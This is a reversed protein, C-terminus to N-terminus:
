IKGLKVVSFNKFDDEHQHSIILMAVAPLSEQLIGMLHIATKHDLNSIPEDMILWEPKHLLVRVFNVRQQEGLSLRNQWDDIEELSDILHDLQCAKMSEKLSQDDFFESPYSLVQRLSGLPMYPRQPLIFLENASPATIRGRFYPYIGALVRVLSTKGLGSAGKLLVRDGRNLTFNALKLIISQNPSLITLDKIQINTGAQPKNVYTSKVQTLSDEFTHIRKISALWGAIQIYSQMFLNLSGVVEAFVGRIQMLIGLTIAGSFYRSGVIMLPIFLQGNLHFNQFINIYITQQLVKYFNATIASFGEKLRNKEFLEGQLKVIEERRERIRVLHYRFNAELKESIIDFGILPRGVKLVVIIGFLAYLLAAWVLSGYVPLSYNFIKFYIIDSLNWLIIAFTVFNIGERFFNMFLTVTLNTYQNIDHAIRQDPNDTDGSLFHIKYYANEEFWQNSLKETLWRRWRFGYWMVFYARTCAEFLFIAVLIFFVRILRFFEPLNKQELANFFDRSWDNLIVGIYVSLISLIVLFLVGVWALKKEESRWWPKILSWVEKFGVNSSSTM